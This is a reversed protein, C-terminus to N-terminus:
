PQEGKCRLRKTLKKHTFIPPVVIPCTKKPHQHTSFKWFSRERKRRRRRKKEKIRM